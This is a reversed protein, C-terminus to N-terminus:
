ERLRQGDAWVTPTRRLETRQDRLCVDQGICVAARPDAEAIAGLSYHADLGLDLPAIRHKRPADLVAQHCVQPSRIVFIALTRLLLQPAHSSLIPPNLNGDLQRSVSLVIRQRNEQALHEALSQHRAPAQSVPQPDVCPEVPLQINIDAM